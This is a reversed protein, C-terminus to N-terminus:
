FSPIKIENVGEVVVETLDVVGDISLRNGPGFAGNIEYVYDPSVPVNGLGGVIAGDNDLVKFKDYAIQSIYSGTSVNKVKFKISTPSVSVEELLVDYIGELDSPEGDTTLISHTNNEYKISVDVFPVESDTAQNRNGILFSSMKRGKVNGKEDIDCLVEDLDTIEYVRTYQSNKYSLFAEYTTNSIDFRYKAGSVATKLEYDTYRGEKIQADTNNAELGEINPFPILSKNLIGNKWHEMVNKFQEPTFYQDDKALIITKVPAELRQKKGGINKTTTTNGGIENRVM